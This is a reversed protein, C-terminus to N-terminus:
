CVNSAESDKEECWNSCYGDSLCENCYNECCSVCCSEDDILADCNVCFVGNDM